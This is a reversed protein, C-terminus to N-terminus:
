SPEYSKETLEHGHRAASGGLIRFGNPLTIIRIKDHAITFDPVIAM